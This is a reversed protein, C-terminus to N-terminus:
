HNHRAGEPGEERPRGRGGHGSGRLPWVHRGSGGSAASGRRRRRRRKKAQADTANVEEPEKMKEGDEVKNVDVSKNVDARKITDLEKLGKKELDAVGETGGM